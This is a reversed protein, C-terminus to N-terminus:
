RSLGSVNEIERYLESEEGSDMGGHESGEQFLIELLAEDSAPGYGSKLVLRPLNQAGFARAVLPTQPCVTLFNQFSTAWYHENLCKRSLKKTKLFAM